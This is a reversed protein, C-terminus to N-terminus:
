VKPWVINTRSERRTKKKVRNFKGIGCRHQRIACQSDNRLINGDFALRSEIAEAVEAATKSEKKGATHTIHM